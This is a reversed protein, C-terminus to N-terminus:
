TNLGETANRNIAIEEASCGAMEALRARLPERGQDLVRWMYYSPGENCTQYFRIHADQVPKPQPSVGGNNLNIINPSVTYQGRIFSWFDEDEAVATPSLSAIKALHEKLEAAQVPQMWDLLSLSATAVASHQLFKKRSLM